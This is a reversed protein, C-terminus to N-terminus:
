KLLAMKRTHVFSGSILLYFYIGTAVISGNDNRGNWEVVTEGAPYQGSAITAIRAGLINFIELSVQGSSPLSFRIKTSPNFPNPYNQSLSFSNPVIPEGSEKSTLPDIELRDGRGSFVFSENTETSGIMLTFSEGPKIGLANDQEAGYVPTFRLKGGSSVIGYGVLTGDGSIASVSQGSLAPQGDLTLTPSYIDIWNNTPVLKGELGLKALPGPGTHEEPEIMPASNFGPYILARPEFVKLWYGFCPSMTILTSFDPLDPEFTLGVSDYGLAVRLNGEQSVLASGTPLSVPPLYSVLNWGAELDIPTNVLVPLGSMNLEICEGPFNEIRVWYGHLHDASTLTSFDPLDPDFTLGVEEFSLIVDVYQLLSGFLVSVDDIDTDVNWSILNWGNKLCITKDASGDFNLCVEFRDGNQTWVRDGTAEAPMGNIFFSIIDGPNAGDDEPTFPDDRYVPMLGYKGAETVFWTGVHDGDPDFADIVSGRPLPVGRYFNLGCFFDVWENTPQVPSVPTLVVELGLAGFNIDELTGPYYGEAFAYVTYPVVFLQRFKFSGDFLTTQEAFVSGQPFNDWIQVTAGPIENGATDIVRGCIVNASSDIVIGGPFFQPIISMMCNHATLVCAPCQRISNLRIPVVGSETIGSFIDFYLNAIKGSGAPMAISAANFTITLTRRGNDITTLTNAIGELRTGEFSISDLFIQASGWELDVSLSCIPGQNIMNVPVKVKSGPTGPVTSVFLTDGSPGPPKRDIRLEAQVVRPSNLVGSDAEVRFECFYVGALLSRTNFGFRLTSPTIGSLTDFFKLATDAVILTEPCLLFSDFLTDCTVICLITTDVFTDCPEAFFCSVDSVRWGFEPGPGANFITISDRIEVFDGEVVRYQFLTDSVALISQPGQSPAVNLIVTFPQPDVIFTTDVDASFECVYKGPELLENDVSIFAFEPTTGSTPSISIWTVPPLSTTTDGLPSVVFCHTSGLVWPVEPGPGVHFIRLSDGGIFPTGAISEFVFLTDSIGVRDPQAPTITLCIVLVVPNNDVGSVTIAVSNYYVGVPRTPFVTVEISDNTLGTPTQVITFINVIDTVEATFTAPANTSSLFAVGRLGVTTVGEEATFFLTDPRVFASDPVPPATVTLCSVLVVPNNEVGAVIFHIDNFYKGPLLSGASVEVCVSDDTMGVSDILTTFITHATDAGPPLPNAFNGLVVGTYPAPANTSSLFACGTVVEDTFPDITFFLTDPAVFARDPPALETVTITVVETDALNGDNAVFTATHPGVQASTPVWKFTGLSQNFGQEFVAGFPLSLASISPFTGADPDSASVLFVLSDGDQVTQPGPVNAVPARNVNNVTISVVESDTLNGDSAFFTVSFTGAQDFGLIISFQGTGNGFDVFGSNPPPPGITLTLADSDPDTASVLVVLTDGEDVSQPGIAGLVPPRNTNNVTITVVESDAFEGDSAIFTVNFQGAQDFNPSFTFSGAGNGSDVFSSNLPLDLANLVPISEADTASIRISLTQGEDVSQPGIPALVPPTNAQPNGITVTGAVFQPEISVQDDSIFIFDGGPPFFASDITIFQDAAGPAATFWYTAWNGQGTPVPPEFIVFFGSLGQSNVNDIDTPTSRAVDAKLRSGVFSISDLTLDTTGWGFGLTGGSLPEDNFFRVPVGFHDGANVQVSGVEVTDPIGPDFQARASEASLLFALTLATLTMTWRSVRNNISKNMM